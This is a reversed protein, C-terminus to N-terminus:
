KEPLPFGKWDPREYCCFLMEAVKVFGLSQALAYSAQNERSDPWYVPVKGAQLIARVAEAVVAKGLGQRQYELHTGVAIEQLVGKDKIYAASLVQGTEDRIAFVGGDFNRLRRDAEPDGPRMAEIAHDAAVAPPKDYPYYFVECQVWEWQNTVQQAQALAEASLLNGPPDMSLVEQARTALSPSVSCVVAGQFSHIWLPHIWGAWEPEDRQQTEVLTFGPHDFVSM